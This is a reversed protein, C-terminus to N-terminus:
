PRTWTWLPGARGVVWAAPTPGFYRGDLSRPDPATLLLSGSGVTRCGSPRPLALGRRDRPRLPLAAAGGVRLGAGSWCLRAGPAAAIRKLLLAGRPLFGRRDLWDALRGQPRVVVWDGLRAPTRDVRWFGLPASATANWVLCPTRPVAALAMTAGAVLLAVVLRRV